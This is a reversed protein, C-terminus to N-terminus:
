TGDITVIIDIPELDVMVIGSPPPAVGSADSADGVSLSESVARDGVWSAPISDTIAVQETIDAYFQIQSTQEESIGLSEDLSDSLEGKSGDHTDAIAMSESLSATLYRVANTIDSISVSESRDDNLEANADQSEAIANSELNSSIFNMQAAQSESIGVTENRSDNEGTSFDQITDIGQSESVSANFDAQTTHSDLIASSESASDDRDVQGIQDEAIAVSESVDDYVVGGEITGAQTEEIGVSEEGTSNFDAQPSSSEEIGASEDVSDNADWQSASSEEIGISESGIADRTQSANQSEAVAVSESVDESYEFSASQLEEIGVSEQRDSATEWSAVNTEQIFNSESVDDYLNQAGASMAITAGLTGMIAGEAVAYVQFSYTHSADAGAPNVGWWNEHEQNAGLDVANSTDTERVRVGSIYTSEQSTCIRQVDTVADGNSWTADSLSYNLEGTAGIIGYGGGDDDDQWYLRYASSETDKNSANINVAVIFEDDVNWGTVDGGDVGSQDVGSINAIRSGGLITYYPGGGLKIEPLVTKKGESRLPTFDLTHQLGCHPCEIVPVSVGEIQLPKAEYPLGCECCIIRM